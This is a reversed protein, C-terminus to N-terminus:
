ECGDDITDVETLATPDVGHQRLVADREDVTAVYRRQEGHRVEIWERLGTSLDIQVLEVQWGQHELVPLM